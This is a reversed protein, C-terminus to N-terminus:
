KERQTQKNKLDINSPIQNVSVKDLTILAPFLWKLTHYNFNNKVNQCLMSQAKLCNSISPPLSPAFSPVSISAMNIVAM